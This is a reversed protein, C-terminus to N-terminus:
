IRGVFFVLFYGKEELCGYVGSFMESRLFFIFVVIIFLGIIDIVRESILFVKM